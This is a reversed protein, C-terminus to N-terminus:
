TCVNYMGIRCLWRAVPSRLNIWRFCPGLSSAPNHGRNVNPKWFKMYIMLLRDTLQLQSHPRRLSSWPSPVLTLRHVQLIQQLFMSLQCSPLFPRDQPTIRVVRVISHLHQLLHQHHMMFSLRSQNSRRSFLMWPSRFNSKLVQCTTQHPIQFSLYFDYSM